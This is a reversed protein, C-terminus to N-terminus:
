IPWLVRDAAIKGQRCMDELIGPREATDKAKIQNRKSEANSCIGKKKERGREKM